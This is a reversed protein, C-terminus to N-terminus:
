SRGAACPPWRRSSRHALQDAVLQDDVRRVVRGVDGELHLGALAIAEALGRDLLLHDLVGQHAAVQAVVLPLREIEGLHQARLEREIVRLVERVELHQGPVGVAVIVRHRDVDVGVGAAAVAVGDAAAVGGVGAHAAREAELVVADVVAAMGEADLDLGGLQGLVAQLGAVGDRDTVRRQLVEAQAGADLLAVPAVDSRVRHRHPRGDGGDGAAPLVDPQDVTYAGGAM